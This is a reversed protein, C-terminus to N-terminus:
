ECNQSTGPARGACESRDRCHGGPGSRASRAGARSDAPAARGRAPRATPPRGWSARWWRGSDDTMESRDLAPWPAPRMTTGRMTRPAPRFGPHGSRGVLPARLAALALRKRCAPRWSRGSIPRPPSRNSRRCHPPILAGRGARGRRCRRAAAGDDRARREVLVRPRSHPRSTPRAAGPSPHLSQRPRTTLRKPRKGSAAAFWRSLFTEPESM